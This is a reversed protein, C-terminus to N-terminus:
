RGRVFAHDSLKEEYVSEIALSDAQKTRLIVEGFCFMKVNSQCGYSASFDM